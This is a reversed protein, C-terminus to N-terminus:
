DKNSISTDGVVFPVGKSVAGREAVMLWAV